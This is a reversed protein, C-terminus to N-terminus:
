AIPTGKLDKPLVEVLKGDQVTFHPMHPRIPSHAALRQAYDCMACLAHHAIVLADVQEGKLDFPNGPLRLTVGGYESFPPGLAEVEIWESLQGVPSRHVVIDRYEGIGALGIPKIEKNSFERIVEAAPANNGKIKRLLGSHTDCPEVHLIFESAFLALYDRLSGLNVFFSHVDHYLDFDGLTGFGHGVPLKTRHAHLQLAHYSESIRRLSIDSALVHFRISETIDAARKNKELKARHSIQGWVREPAQGYKDASEFAAASMWEIRERTRTEFVESGVILLEASVIINAFKEPTIGEFQIGFEDGLPSIRLTGDPRLQSRLGHALHTWPELKLTGTQKIPSDPPSEENRAM